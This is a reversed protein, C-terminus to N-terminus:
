AIPITQPERPRIASKVRLQEPVSGLAIPPRVKQKRTEARALHGSDPGSVRSADDGLMRSGSCRRGVKAYTLQTLRDSSRPFCDPSSGDGLSDRCADHAPTDRSPRPQALSLGRKRSTAQTDAVLGRLHAGDRSRGVVGVRVRHAWFESLALLVIGAGSVVLGVIVWRWLAVMHQFIVIGASSPPRAVPGRGLPGGRGGLSERLASFRLAGFRRARWFRAPMMLEDYALLVFVYLGASLLLCAASIGALVRPAAEDPLTVLVTATAALTFGALVGLVVMKSTLKTRLQEIAAAKSPTLIWWLHWRAARDRWPPKATGNSTTPTTDRDRVRRALCAVEASALAPLVTGRALCGDLLWDIAPQHGVLLIARTAADNRDFRPRKREAALRGDISEQTRAVKQAAARRRYPPFEHLGLAINSGAGHRVKLVEAYVEATARSEPTDAHGVVTVAIPWASDKLERLTQALSGAVEQVTELDSLQGHRGILLLEYDVFRDDWSPRGVAVGPWGM